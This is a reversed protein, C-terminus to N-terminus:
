NQKGVKLPAISRKPKKMSMKHTVHNKPGNNKVNNRRAKSETKKKNGAQIRSSNQKFIKIRTETLDKKNQKSTQKLAIKM